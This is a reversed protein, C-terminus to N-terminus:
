VDEKALDERVSAVLAEADKLRKELEKRRTSAPTAIPIAYVLENFCTGCQPYPFDDWSGEMFRTLGERPGDKFDEETALRFGEPIPIMCCAYRTNPSLNAEEWENCEKLQPQGSLGTFGGMSTMMEIAKM